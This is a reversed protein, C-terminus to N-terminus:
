ALSHKVIKVADSFNAAIFINNNKNGIDSQDSILIGSAGYKCICLDRKQDGIAVSKHIDIKYKKSAKIFLGIGPKRDPSDKKYKEITADPLYPCYFTDTLKVGNKSLDNRMWVDLKKYDDETYYGRAIGSQNTIVILLYGADQLKKLGEIVGPLYEFDEIKYLYGKDVNITGDRDLFVAKNM